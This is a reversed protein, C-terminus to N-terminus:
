GHKPWCMKRLYEEATEAYREVFTLSNKAQEHLDALRPRKGMGAYGVEGKRTNPQCSPRDVKALLVFM